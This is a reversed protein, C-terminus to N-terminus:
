IYTTPPVAGGPSLADDHGMGCHWHAFMLCFHLSHEIHSQILVKIASFKYDHTSRHTTPIRSLAVIAPVHGEALELWNEGYEAAQRSTM